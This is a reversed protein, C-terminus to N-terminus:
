TSSVMNAMFHEFRTSFQLHSNRNNYLNDPSALDNFERQLQKRRESEASFPQLLMELIQDCRARYVCLLTFTARCCETRNNHDIERALIMDFIRKVFPMLSVYLFSEPNHEYYVNSALLNVIELCVSQIDIGFSGLGQETCQLINAMFTPQVHISQFLNTHHVIISIFNRNPQQMGSKGCFDQADSLIVYLFQSIEAYGINDYAYYVTPDGPM